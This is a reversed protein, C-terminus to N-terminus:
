LPLFARQTALHDGGLQSCGYPHTLAFVGDITGDILYQCQKEIATVVSNVCGVTPIILIENRIGVKGKEREYGMFYKEERIKPPVFDPEYTYNLNDKLNTKINHVHVKDGIKIDATAHGIVSGYKVINEGCTIDRLAFKHGQNEGSVAVEVNDKPDIKIREM